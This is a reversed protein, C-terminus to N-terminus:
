RPSVPLTPKLPQSATQVRISIRDDHWDVEPKNQSSGTGDNLNSKWVMAMQDTGATAFFHGDSTFAVDNVGGQHGQLSFLLRGERLDWIKTFSDKSASLLYM